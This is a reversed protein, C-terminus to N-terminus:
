LISSCDTRLASCYLCSLDARAINGSHHYLVPYLYLFSYKERLRDVQQLSRVSILLKKKTANNKEERVNKTKLLTFLFENRSSMLAYKAYGQFLFQKM